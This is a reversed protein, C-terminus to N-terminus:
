RGENFCRSCITLPDDMGLMKWGLQWALHSITSTTETGMRICLWRGGAYALGPLTWLKPRIAGEFSGAMVVCSEVICSFLHLRKSLM